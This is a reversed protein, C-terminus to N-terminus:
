LLGFKKLRYRLADRSIRLFRAAHTQNGHAKEMAQLVLLGSSM